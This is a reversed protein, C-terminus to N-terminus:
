FGGNADITDAIWDVYGALRTYVGPISADCPAPGFSVLGVQYWFGDELRCVLPGGSDGNCATRGDGGACQMTEQITFGAGELYIEECEREEVLPLTAQRLRWPQGFADGPESEGEGMMGWGTLVCEAGAPFSSQDGYDGLKPLCPPSVSDGLTAPTELRLLAIDNARDPTDYHPHIFKAQIKIKQKGAEEERRDHQGVVAQDGSYTGIFVINACHAATLVWSPSLLSAGCYHSNDQGQISVQWPWSHAVAEEGNIVRGLLPWDPSIAPQGCSRPPLVSTNPSCDAEDSGDGCNIDGDCVESQAICDGAQCQWQGAGCQDWSTTPPSSSVTSPPYTVDGTTQYFMRFGEYNNYSDTFLTVTIREAQLLIDAPVKDGCLDWRQGTALDQITLHDYCHTYGTELWFPDGFSLKVPQSGENTITWRM